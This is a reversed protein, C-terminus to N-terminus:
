TKKFNLIYEESDIVKIGNALLYAATVGQGEKLIGKFTGDYIHKCGCSPSKSKLIVTDARFLKVLKLTEKAGALFSGTVDQGKNNIVRAEGNLVDKGDGGVIESPPRPTCLGGAQEPCFPVINGTKILKTFVESSNNKGDYRTNLGVLCSSIILRM